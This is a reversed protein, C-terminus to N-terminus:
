GIVSTCLTSAAFCEDFEKAVCYDWYDLKRMWINRRLLSLTMRVPANFVPLVPFVRL